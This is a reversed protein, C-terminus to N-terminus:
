RFDGDAMAPDVQPDDDAVGRIDPRLRMGSPCAGHRGDPNPLSREANVEFGQAVKRARRARRRHQAPHRGDDPPQGAAGAANAGQAELEYLIAPVREGIREICRSDLGSANLATVFRFLRAQM